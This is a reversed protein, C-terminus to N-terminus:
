RREVDVDITREEWGEEMDWNRQEKRVKGKEEKGKGLSETGGEGESSGIEVNEFSLGKEL